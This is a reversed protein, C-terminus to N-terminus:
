MAVMQGVDARVGAIKLRLRSGKEIAQDESVYAPPNATPNYTM